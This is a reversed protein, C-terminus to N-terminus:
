TKQRNYSEHVHYVTSRKRRDTKTDTADETKQM